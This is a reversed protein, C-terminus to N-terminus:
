PILFGGLGPPKAKLVKSCLRNSIILEGCPETAQLGVTYRIENIQIILEQYADRVEPMDNVSIVFQEQGTRALVDM